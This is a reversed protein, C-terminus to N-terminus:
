KSNKSDNAPNKGPADELVDDVTDRKVTVRVNEGMEVLLDEEGVTKIVKAVVGGGTLITDGRMIADLKAKHQKMKVHQPRILLFYFVAFILGFQIVIGMGQAGAPASAAATQALAESILM